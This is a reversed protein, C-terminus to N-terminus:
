QIKYYAASLSLIISVAAYVKVNNKSEDSKTKVTVCGVVAGVTPTEDPIIM